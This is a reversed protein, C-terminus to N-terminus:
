FLCLGAEGCGQDLWSNFKIDRDLGYEHHGPIGATSVVEADITEGCASIQVLWVGLLSNLLVPLSSAAVTAGEAPQFVM